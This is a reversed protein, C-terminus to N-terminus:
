AHEQKYRMLLVTFYLSLIFNQLISKENLKELLSVWLFFLLIAFCFCLRMKERWKQKRFYYCSSSIPVNRKKNLCSIILCLFPFCIFILPQFILLIYIINLVYSHQFIDFSKQLSGQFYSIFTSCSQQNYFLYKLNPIMLIKMNLNKQSTDFTSTM